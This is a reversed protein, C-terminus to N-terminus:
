RSNKCPVLTQNRAGVHYGVAIKLEVELPNQNGRRDEAPVLCYSMYMYTPLASLLSFLFLLSIM